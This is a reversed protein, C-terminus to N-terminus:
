MKRVVGPRKENDWCEIGTWFNESSATGECLPADVKWGSIQNDISPLKPNEQLARLLAAPAAAAAADDAAAAVPLLLV